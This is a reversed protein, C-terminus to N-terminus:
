FTPFMFSGTIHPSNKLVQQIGAHTCSTFTCAHCNRTNGSRRSGGHSPQSTRHTTTFYPVTRTKARVCVCVCGSHTQLAPGAKVSRAGPEAPVQQPAAGSAKLMVRLTLAGSLSALTRVAAPTVCFLCFTHVNLAAPSITDFGPSLDSTFWCSRQEVRLM